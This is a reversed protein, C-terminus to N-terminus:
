ETIKKVVIRLPEALPFSEQTTDPAIARIRGYGNGLPFVTGASALEWRGAAADILTLATVDSTDGVRWHLALTYGTLDIAAGDIKLTGRIAKTDGFICTIAATM